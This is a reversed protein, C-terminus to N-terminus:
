KLLGFVFFGYVFGYSMVKVKICMVFMVDVFEVGFVWVGVFWYLDEGLNFVEVFGVDGFFHVMIRM